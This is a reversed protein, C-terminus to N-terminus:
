GNNEKCIEIAQEAAITLAEVIKANLYKKALEIDITLTEQAMCKLEDLYMYSKAHRLDYLREALKICLIFLQERNIVQKFSNKIYLGCPEMSQRDNVALVNEVFSYINLDYNAKIYSLPLDAYHVLGYLLTVYVPEPYFRIWEAVLQAIGISRVYLLQGSSHRQFGYCRRTLLVIEDIVARRAESIELIQNYSKVFVEISQDIEKQTIPANLPGINSIMADRVNVVNHPVVMLMPRKRAIPFRLYGYHARIAREIVRKEVHIHEANTHSNHWKLDRGETIDEYHNKIKPLMMLPTTANSIVLAIAPFNMESHSTGTRTNKQTYKLQTTYLQMRIRESKSGDLNATHLITPVLSQIMHNIDCTIRKPITNDKIEIALKPTPPGKTELVAELKAILEDIAIENPTLLIHEIYRARQKLFATFTMFNNIISELDQKYFPRNDLYSILETADQMGKEVFSGFKKRNKPIAASDVNLNPNITEDQRKEERILYNKVYRNYIKYSTIQRKHYIIIYFVILGFLLLYLLSDNLSLLTNLGINYMAYFIICLVGAVLKISIYLPLVFLTTSLHAISLTLAFQPDQLKTWHWLVNIPLCFVSSVLWFLGIKWGPKKSKPAIAYTVLATGVLFQLIYWYIITQENICDLVTTLIIYCGTFGIVADSPILKALKEKISIFKLINKIYAQKSKISQEIAKIEHLFQTNDVDDEELSSAPLNLYFAIVLVFLLFSLAILFFAYFPM